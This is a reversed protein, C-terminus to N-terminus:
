DVLLAACVFIFAVLSLLTFAVVVMKTKSSARRPRTTPPSPPRRPTVVMAGNFLRDRAINLQKALFASGGLDPHVRKMLRGYAARVEEHTAGVAIGLIEAAMATTMESRAGPIRDDRQDRTRSRRQEAGTRERAHDKRLREQRADEAIKNQRELEEQELRERERMAAESRIRAAAEERKRNAEEAEARLADMAEEGEKRPRRRKMVVKDVPSATQRDNRALMASANDGPTVKKPLEM